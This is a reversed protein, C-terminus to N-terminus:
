DLLSEMSQSDMHDLHKQQETKTHINTQKEFSGIYFTEMM